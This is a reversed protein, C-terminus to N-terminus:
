DGDLSNFGLYLDTNKLANEFAEHLNDLRSHITVLQQYDAESNQASVMADASDALSTNLEAFADIVAQVDAEHFAETYAMFLPELAAVNIKINALSRESRWSEANRTRIRAFSEGMVPALKLDRIKSLSEQLAKLFEISLDEADEYIGGSAPELVVARYEDQWRGLIGSSIENLNAAITESLLCLYDNDQFDALATDAFFLRELAPLGQIGVSQRAFSNADLIETNAAAILTQLQRGSTDREDPWYQMRFNWNFYTVPGFQIHQVAQWADMMNAFAGQALALSDAAPATCFNETREVLEQSATQLTTYAPIVLEDTVRLNIATWGEDTDILNQALGHPLGALLSLSLFFRILKMMTNM